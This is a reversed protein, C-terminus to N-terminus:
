GPSGTVLHRPWPQLELHVGGSADTDVVHQEGSSVRRPLTLSVSDVHHRAAPVLNLYLPFLTAAAFLAVVVCFSYQVSLAPDQSVALQVFPLPCAGFFAATLICGGLKTWKGLGRLGMAFALPHLPAEFFVVLLGVAATSNVNPLHLSMMLAALIVCGVSSVLLLVRPPIFLCLFAFIFRAAAFMATGVLYYDNTSLTQSTGTAKSVTALLYAFFIEICQTGGETVFIAFSAFLFTALVISFRGSSSQQSGHIEVMENKQRALRETQSQLKEDSAEPLPMYYFFLSILVVVLTMSLYIWQTSIVSVAFLYRSILGSFISAVIEVGEAILLRSEAYQPPGCLALFTDSASKFISEGFGVVFNSVVFAPYSGLAGSPWYILTGVCYISLGTIITAKFGFHRLVWQGVTLPGVLYSGFSVSVISVVQALSRNTM